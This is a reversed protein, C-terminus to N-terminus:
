SDEMRIALEDADMHIAVWTRHIGHGYYAGIEVINNDFIRRVFFEAVCAESDDPYPLDGADLTLWNHPGKGDITEFPLFDAGNVVRENAIAIIHNFM